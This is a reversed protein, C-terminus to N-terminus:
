WGNRSPIHLSPPNTQHLIPRLCWSGDHSPLNKIFILCAGVRIARKRKQAMRAPQNAWTPRVCVATKGGGRGPALEQELGPALQSVQEIEPVVRVSPAAVPWVGCWTMPVHPAAVLKPGHESTAPSSGDIGSEVPTVPVSGAAFRGVGVAEVRPPMSDIAGADCLQTAYM